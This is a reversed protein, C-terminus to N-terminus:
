PERQRKLDEIQAQAQKLAMDQILVTQTLIYLADPRSGITNRILADAEKDVQPTPASKMRDALGAILQREQDTMKGRSRIIAGCRQSRRCHLDDRASLRGLGPSAPGAAISSVNM